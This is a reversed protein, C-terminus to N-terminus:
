LRRNVTDQRGRSTLHHPWRKIWAPTGRPVAQLFIPTADIGDPYLKLTLPRDRLHPLIVAAVERYYRVLDVKTLRDAPWLVKDQNTLRVQRTGVVAVAPQQQSRQNGRQM